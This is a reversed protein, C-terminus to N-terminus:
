KKKKSNLPKGWAGVLAQAGSDSSKAGAKKQNKSPMNKNVIESVRQQTIGLERAAASKNGGHREVTKIVWAHWEAPTMEEPRFDYVSDLKLQKLWRAVEQREFRVAPLQNRPHGDLEVDDDPIEGGSLLHDRKKYLLAHCLGELLERKLNESPMGTLLFLSHHYAARIRKLVPDDEDLRTSDTLPDIGQILCAIEYASFTKQFDWRRLNPASDGSTM